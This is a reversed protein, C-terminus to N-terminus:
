EPHSECEYTNEPYGTMRNEQSGLNFVFRSRSTSWRSIAPPAEWSPPCINKELKEEQSCILPLPCNEGTMSGRRSILPIERHNRLIVLLSGSLIIIGILISLHVAGSAALWSLGM